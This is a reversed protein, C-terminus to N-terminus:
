VDALPIRSHNFFFPLRVDIWRREEFEDAVVKGGAKVAEDLQAQRGAGHGAIIQEDKEQAQQIESKVLRAHGMLPWYFGTVFAMETKHSHLEHDQGREKIWKELKPSHREQKIRERALEMVKKFADTKKIHPDNIPMGNVAM